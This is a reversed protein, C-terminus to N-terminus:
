EALWKNSFLALPKSHIIKFKIRWNILISLHIHAVSFHLFFSLILSLNLSFNLWDDLITQHDFIFSCHNLMTSSEFFRILEVISFEIFGRKDVLRFRLWSKLRCHVRLSKIFSLFVEKRCCHWGCLWLLLFFCYVSWCKVLLLLFKEILHNRCIVLFCSFVKM